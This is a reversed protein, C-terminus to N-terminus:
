GPPLPTGDSDWVNGSVVNGPTNVEDSCGTWPGFAGGNASFQRSIRNDIVQINTGNGQYDCYLSYAGGGMLNNQITVNEDGVPNSIMSSTGAGFQGTGYITNHIVTINRAHTVECASTPCGNLYHALQIGDTHSNVDNALDHVYSDQVTDWQDLDFGNECGHINVRLATVNTDGIATRGPTNLCDIESDQVTLRATQVGQDFYGVAEFGGCHVKTRSITVGPATVTICGNVEHADYVQNATSLTVDGNVVTLTTGAPVGTNSADPFTSGGGSSATVYNTRTLTSSGGANTATLAVSYTGATTYTHVPNQTTSTAGDGFAWSWSTPTGTSTDTFQVSLPATGSTPTGTFNAVPAPPPTVTAKFAALQMIWGGGGKTATASYSGTATVNRDETIDLDSTIIRKTYGTGAATFGGATIGAGFLLDGANTTTASGSSANTGTAATGSAGVDFAGLNAYESARLDVYPAAQNLTVTVTDSGAAVNSAYYIAQSLGNGRFTALAVQYVNGRSDSVSTISSTADNWGIALVNTHGAVEANTFATSVSSQPTQPTTAKVQVFTPTAAFAPTPMGVVILMVAMAVAVWVAAMAAWVALVFRWGVKVGNM